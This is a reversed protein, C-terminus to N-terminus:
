CIVCPWSNKSTNTKRLTQECGEHSEMIVFSTYSIYNQYNDIDQHFKKHINYGKEQGDCCCNEECLKVKKIKIYKGIVVIENNEILINKSNNCFRHLDALSILLNKHVSYAWEDNFIM